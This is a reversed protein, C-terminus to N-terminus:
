KKLLWDIQSQSYPVLQGIPPPTPVLTQAIKKTLLDLGEGTRCSILLAQPPIEPWASPLDIKNLVLLSNPRTESISFLGGPDLSELALPPPPVSIDFVIVRLDARSLSNRGM